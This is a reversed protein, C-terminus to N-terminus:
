DSDSDDGEDDGTESVKAVFADASGNFTLDPGGKVPFSTETSSTIGTVYANGKKDVAIGNGVDGGDGGIYGAYVLATGSANVKAVFADVDGFDGNFTPDPGGKVPFSAETSSTIGTVYANGKKDVAIGLGRDDGDGGLYGAYVLATGSANVKAVFADVADIDGNFTLDPGGKVPFSAETSGTEGTVYANGAKDVAIGSGADFDGGGIYGAYVLATGSANVKAVFADGGSNFTLDPGGKVPFSAETSFTFGTVYANGKKDVAIGFGGDGDDGGIYGAYVLATGSANVKAVFADDVGNFTLDPGGKVPFSAETSSTRGTVYANGKKDVGIGLGFDTTDGGIYGAYVLATGSANVKAVFADRVGNFTLDPGGKVPFSAETSETQGTVYANGKKDVAIGLGRDDGDGGIYGAYVLATGSANVKAVFADGGFGGSIPGSNLTLDPGVKVPFSAEPSGTEGTVYANGKEDVAIGNGVDDFDGGIYGAYVFVAPDLVLPRRHDYDGLKFGYARSGAEAKPELAYDTTIEM